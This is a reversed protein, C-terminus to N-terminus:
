QPRAFLIMDVALAVRQWDDCGKPSSLADGLSNLVAKPASHGHAQVIQAARLWVERETM